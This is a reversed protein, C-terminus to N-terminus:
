VHGFFDRQDMAGVAGLQGFAVAGLRDGFEAVPAVHRITDAVIQEPEAPRM